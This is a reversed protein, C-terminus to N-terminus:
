RTIKINSWGAWDYSFDNYPGPQIEFYLLGGQLHDLAVSFSQIDRDFSIETPNLLRQYLDNRYTGDSWYIVFRAGNTHNGQTYASEVFGFDGNLRKAGFPLDFVM